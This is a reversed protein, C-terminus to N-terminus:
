DTILDAQIATSLAIPREPEDLDARVHGCGRDGARVRPPIRRGREHGVEVTM